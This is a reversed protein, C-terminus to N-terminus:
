YYSCSEFGFGFELQGSVDADMKTSRTLFTNCALLTPKNAGQEM